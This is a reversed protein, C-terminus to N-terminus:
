VDCTKQDYYGFSKDSEEALMRVRWKQFNGKTLREFHSSYSVLVEEYESDFNLVVYAYFDLYNMFGQEIIVRSLETRIKKKTDVDLQEYSGIDFNNFTIRESKEYQHKHKKRSDDTDHILYDYMFRVNNVKQCTNFAKKGPASLGQLVELASKYTTTNPFALMIHVHAKRDDAAGDRDKDHVCYAGPLQTIEGIRDQWDPIFNEPYGVGVWYRAKTTITPNDKETKINAM